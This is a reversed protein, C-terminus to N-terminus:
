TAARSAQLFPSLDQGSYIVLYATHPDDPDALVTLSFRGSLAPLQGKLSGLNFARDSLVYVWAVEAGRRYELLPVRKGQFEALASHALLAADLTPPEKCDHRRLWRVVDPVPTGAANIEEQLRALDPEVPRNLWQAGSWVLLAAALGGALPGIVRRRYWSDRQAGLRHLLRGRLEPPVPVDRMARGIPEDLSRELRQVAACAPCEALHNNLAESDGEELEPALPQAFNLLLRATKCDM